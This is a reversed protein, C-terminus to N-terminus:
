LALASETTLLAQGFAAICADIEFAVEPMTPLTTQRARCTFNAGIAFAFQATLLAQGLAAVDTYVEIGVIGV